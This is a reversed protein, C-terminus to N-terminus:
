SHNYSTMGKYFHFLRYIYFTKIKYKSDILMKTFANEKYRFNNINGRSYTIFSTKIIDTAYLTKSM